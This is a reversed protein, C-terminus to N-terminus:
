DYVTIILHLSKSQKIQNFHAPHPHPDISYETRMWAQDGLGVGESEAM